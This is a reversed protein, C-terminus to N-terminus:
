PSAETAPRSFAAPDAESWGGGIAKYIAVVDTALSADAQTLQDQVQLLSAQAQYVATYDTLGAGYQQRAIGYASTAAKFAGSVSTWRRQDADYRAIADETERLANLATDRYAFLAEDRASRASRVGARLRGGQFLPASGQALSLLTGSPKMFMDAIAVESYTPLLTLNLTPFLQATAVGIQANAAALRREAARLDPRRRLLDSPLGAPLTPPVPPLAGTPKLEEALAEPPEGILTAIAHRQAAVDAEVQPIQSETNALQTRQQDVDLNTVLGAKFRDGIIKFLGRQRELDANLVGLRTQDARLQLYADALQSVLSVESDRATWVQAEEQARAAEVGRRGRGFLDLEWAANLGVSFLEARNPLSLGGGQGAMAAGGAAAGGSAAGGAAAGSQAGGGLGSLTRGKTDVRAAMSTASVTPLEAARAVVVQERAQRIRAGAEALTLSGKLAREVLSDLEPDGFQRWWAALDAEDPTVRSLTAQGGEGARSEFAQPSALEPKAYNPGVTCGAVAAATLLVALLSSPRM